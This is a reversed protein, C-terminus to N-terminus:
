VRIRLLLDRLPSRMFQFSLITLNGFGAESCWQKFALSVGKPKMFRLDKVTFGILATEWVL